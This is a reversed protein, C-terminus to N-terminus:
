YRMMDFSLGGPIRLTVGDPNFYLYDYCFHVTLMEEPGFAVKKRQASDRFFSRREMTEELRKEGGDDDEVCLESVDEEIPELHPFPPIKHLEGDIHMHKVYPM